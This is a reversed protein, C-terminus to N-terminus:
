ADFSLPLDEYGIETIIATAHPPGLLRMMALVPGWHERTM